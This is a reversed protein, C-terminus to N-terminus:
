AIEGLIRDLEAQALELTAFTISQTLIISGSSRYNGNADLTPLKTVLVSYTAPLSTNVTIEVTDIGITQYLKNNINVFQKSM